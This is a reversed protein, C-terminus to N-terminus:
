KVVSGSPHDYWDTAKSDKIWNTFAHEETGYAESIDTREIPWAWTGPVLFMQPVTGKRDPATITKADDEDESDLNYVKIAFGAMSTKNAESYSLSFTGNKLKTQEDKSLYTALDIAKGPTGKSTTNLMPYSGTARDGDKGDILDHIEGLKTTNFYVESKLVGGAALPTATLKPNDNSAVYSIQMVVDNFDYDDTSGLDECAITWNQALVEPIDDDEVGKVFCLIDNMDWDAAGDSDEFGLVVIGNEKYTVASVQGEDIAAGDSSPREFRSFYRNQSTTSHHSYTVYNEKKPETTVGNKSLLDFEVVYGKPFTFSPTGKGDEGFFVLDYRTGYCKDSNAFYYFNSSNVNQGPRADEILVYRTAKAKTEESAGEKYYYYAFKNYNNTNGYAYTLSIPQGTTKYAVNAIFTGDNLFEDRKRNGERFIGTNDEVSSGILAKLDAWDCVYVNSEKSVNTLDAFFASAEKKYKGDYVVNGDADFYFGSQVTETIKYPESATTNCVTTEDARTAARSNTGISVMANEVDYYGSKENGKGDSIIVYVSSTGKVADFTITTASGSSVSYDAMLRCDPNIPHATCVKVRYTSQPMDSLDVTATIQQAMNWDQNPDIFGFKKVFAKTYAEEATEV